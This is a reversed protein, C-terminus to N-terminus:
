VDQIQSRLDAVMADDLELEPHASGAHSAVQDMVDEETDADITAHCGEPPCALRKSM